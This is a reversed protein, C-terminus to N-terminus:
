LAPDPMPRPSPRGGGEERAGCRAQSTARETLFEAFGPMNAGPQAPRVKPPPTPEPEIQFPPAKPAPPPASEAPLLPAPTPPTSEVSPAPAAETIGSLDVIFDAKSEIRKPAPAPKAEREANAAKARLLLATLGDM